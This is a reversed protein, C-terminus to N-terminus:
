KHTCVTLLNWQNLLDLVIYSKIEWCDFNKIRLQLVQNVGDWIRWFEVNLLKPCNNHGYKSTIKFWGAQVSQDQVVWLSGFEWVLLLSEIKLTHKDEKYDWFRLQTNLVLCCVVVVLGYLDFSLSSAINRYSRDINFWFVTYWNFVVVVMVIMWVVGRFLGYCFTFLSVFFMLCFLPACFSGPNLSVEISDTLNRLCKYVTLVPLCCPLFKSLRSNSHFRLALLHPSKWVRQNDKFHHM